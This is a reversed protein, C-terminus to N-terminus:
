KAKMVARTHPSICPTCQNPSICPTLQHERIPICVTTEMTVKAKKHLDYKLTGKEWKKKPRFTQLSLSLSIIITPTIPYPVAGKSGSESLSSLSLPLSPPPLSSTPSPHPLPSLTLPSPPFLSVLILMKDLSDIDLHVCHPLPGERLSLVFKLGGKDNGYLSSSAGRTTEM